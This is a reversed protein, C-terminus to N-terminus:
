DVMREVARRVRDRVFVARFVPLAPGAVRPRIRLKLLDYIAHGCATRWDGAETRGHMEHILVMVLNQKPAGAVAVINARLPMEHREEPCKM